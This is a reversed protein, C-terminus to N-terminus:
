LDININTVPELTPFTFTDEIVGDFYINVTTDPLIYPASTNFSVSFSGDSNEVLAINSQIPPPSTDNNSVDNENFGTIRRRTKDEFKCVVKVRRSGDFHEVTAGEKVILPLDKYKYSYNDKNYDSVFCSNEALLHRDIIREIITEKSLNVRLEYDYLNERRVKQMEGSVYQINDIQTNPQFYGFKGSMRVSDTVMSGTFDIGELTNNDNLVSLVRVQGNVRDADWPILEYDGKTRTAELGAYSVSCDLRYCGPGDSILVDRWEFQCYYANPTAVFPFSPPQYTALEGNKYLTFTVEDGFDWEATVDNRYRDVSTVDAVKLMPECCEPFGRDEEAVIIPTKAVDFTLKTRDQMVNFPNGAEVGFAKSTFSLGNELAIKSPDFLCELVMVNLTIDMTCQTEGNLPQLPNQPVNGTPWATSSVWRPGSEKPEVTIQGWLAFGPTIDWELPALHTARVKVIENDLPKTLPTGDLKFFEITSKLSDDYTRDILTIQNAYNGDPTQLEFSFRLEWDANQYQQWNKNAAPYFDGSVNALTEWYEWRFLFPYRLRLAYRDVTDNVPERKLTVATRNAAPPMKFARNTTFDVPITDGQNPYPAFPIDQRELEFFDGDDKVALIRATVGIYERDAITDYEVKPLQIFVDVEIDDETSFGIEPQYTGSTDPHFILSPSAYPFEGLPPVFKVSNGTAVDLWAPRIDNGTLAPDECRVAFRFYRDTEDKSEIYEGYEGNPLLAGSILAYTGFQEVEIDVIDVAAGMQNIQGSIDVNVGVMLATESISLCLNRELSTPLNKFESEDQPVHLFQLNLRSDATFVGNVRLNSFNSRQTHDFTPMVNGDADTWVVDVFTYEPVGGNFIENYFGTSSDSPTSVMSLALAPNQYQPLAKFQFWPKVCMSSQFIEPDIVCWQKFQTFIRYVKSGNSDAQRQITPFMNSGGSRNGQQEFNLTSGGVTLADVGTVLFRQAEGDILSFETGTSNNPVLNFAFEFAEPETDTKFEGATIMGAPGPLDTSVQMFAGDIFLITTGGPISQPSGAPDTYNGSIGAGAIFGYQEWSGTTLTLEDEAKDVALSYSFEISFEVRVDTSVTMQDGANALCFDLTRGQDDTYERNLIQLPM